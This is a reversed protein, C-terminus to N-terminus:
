YRDEHPRNDMFGSVGLRCGRPDYIFIKEDVDMMDIHGTKVDLVPVMKPDKILFTDEDMAVRMYVNMSPDGCLAFLDTPETDAVTYIDRWENCERCIRLTQKEEFVVNKMNMEGKYEPIHLKKTLFSPDYERNYYGWGTCDHTPSYHIDVGLDKYVEKLKKHFGSRKNQVYRYGYTAADVFDSAKKPEYKYGNYFKAADVESDIRKMARIQGIAADMLDRRRRCEDCEKGVYSSGCKDCVHKELLM